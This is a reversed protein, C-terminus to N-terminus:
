KLWYTQMTVRYDTYNVQGVTFSLDTVDVLRLSDELDNLFSVFNEYSSTVTFNLTLSGFPRTDPGLAGERSEGSADQVSINKLTMGYKLAINDIDLVLRVNDVNDPLLKELRERDRESINNFKATLQERREKLERSKSLVTNYEAEKVRIEKAEKYMPDVYAFFLGLSSVILIVSLITSM